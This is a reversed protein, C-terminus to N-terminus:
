FVFFTFRLLVVHRHRSQPSIVARRSGQLPHVPHPLTPDTCLESICTLPHLPPSHFHSRFGCHSLPLPFPAETPFVATHQRYTPSSIQLHSPTTHSSKQLSITSSPSAKFQMLQTATFHPHPVSLLLNPSTSPSFRSGRASDSIPSQKTTIAQLQYHPSSTSSPPSLIRPVLPTESCPRLQPVTYFPTPSTSVSPLPITAVHNIPPRTNQPISKPQPSRAVRSTSAAVSDM